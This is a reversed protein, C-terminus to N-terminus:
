YYNIYWNEENMLKDHIAQKSGQDKFKAAVRDALFSPDNLRKAIRMLDYFREGEFALERAREKFIEDIIHKQMKDSSGTMDEYGIIENTVPDHRYIINELKVAEYGDAFGVRGRVGLQGVTNSYSGNNIIQLITNSQTRPVDLGGYVFKWLAYIEAACLHVDAARYIIFNADHAYGNKGIAYKTVVTDVENMLTKVENLNGNRKKLLMNKITDPNLYKGDKYYSYSVGYGRFFDGPIGPEIVESEEPKANNLKVQPNNWISEWNRVCSATPKLMYENPPLVSFLSQLDNTQEYSKGFWLTFIHEYTDIGTFINKWKTKEFKNDLGFRINSTESSYNYLIPNFHEMARTYNGEYMYMKGLLVHRASQNWLPGQWSVDNTEIGYNVGVAKIKGGNLTYALQNTFTDIVAKPSLFRKELVIITDRITDNHFGDPAFDIYEKDIYTGGSNVYDEIEEVSNLSEPIYPIRGFIRVANFYAWARMCLAEGYLRDYNTIKAKKDTVDPHAVEIQQILKNSASILKYFNVPSAYPNDRSINFNYVEILDSTANETIDLLDGRLEGLIVLQEVLNQQISYLGMGASRYDEWNEYMEDTTKILDQDPQIFEECSTFFFIMGTSLIGFVFPFCFARFYNMIAHIIMSNFKRYLVNIKM